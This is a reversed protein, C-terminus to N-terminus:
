LSSSYVPSWNRGPLNYQVTNCAGPAVKLIYIRNYVLVVWCTARTREGVEGTTIDGHGLSVLQNNNTFLIGAPHTDTAMYALVDADPCKYYICSKSHMSVWAQGWNITEESNFLCVIPHRLIVFYGEKATRPKTCHPWHVCKHCVTTSSKWSPVSTPSTNAARPWVRCIHGEHVM